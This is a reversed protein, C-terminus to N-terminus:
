QYPDSSGFAPLFYDSFDVFDILNDGNFDGQEWHNLEDTYSTGFHTIFIQYDPYDVVGDFNLDGVVPTTCIRFGQGTHTPQKRHTGARYGVQGHDSLWRWHGGRCMLYTDAEWLEDGEFYTSTWEHANGTADLLGWPTKSNPYSGVSEFGATSPSSNCSNDDLTPLSATPQVHSRNPFRWYSEIAPEYHVAKVWESESPIWWPVGTTETMWSAFATAAVYSTEIPHESHMAPVYVGDVEAVQVFPTQTTAFHEGNGANLFGCFQGVTTEHRTIRYVHDVEGIRLEAPNWVSEPANNAHTVPIVQLVSAIILAIM